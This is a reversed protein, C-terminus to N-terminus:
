RPVEVLDPAGPQLYDRVLLEVFEDMSAFQARAPYDPHDWWQEANRRAAQRARDETIDVFMRSGAPPEYNPPMRVDGAWNVHKAQKGSRLSIVFPTVGDRSNWIVEEESDDDARYTMLCFAEVHRYGM